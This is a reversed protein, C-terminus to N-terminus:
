RALTAPNVRPIGTVIFSEADFKRSDQSFGKEPTKERDADCNALTRCPLLCPFLELSPERSLRAKVDEVRCCKKQLNGM